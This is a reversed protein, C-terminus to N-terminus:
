APPQHDEVSTAGPDAGHHADRDYPAGGHWDFCLVTADDRLDGDSSDLVADALQQVAERPHLERGAGIAANMDLGAASRDLMGDTLFLLRDGPLLELEQARFDVDPSAGFPPDAVLELEEVRGDRLRLPPPHGANVIWARSAALEVRMLQGTVFEGRSTHEVLHENARRAQEVLDLGARRGNRLAGVLLTALIAAEVNHGMADTVSVHLHEPELVFDFTDGGVEGAPELWGALTFQGGECTYSGPLLRHQIEASLSLRVSRQGWEFVDTHRQNAIVLYALAHAAQAIQRSAHADPAAPLLLELVGMADGRNTIPAIVRAGDDLPEVVVSQESLARGHCTDRLPVRETTALVDGDGPSWHGLRVLARGSFDAILLSAERVDLRKSLATAIVDCLAFPPAAEAHALLAGLDLASSDPDSVALLRRM